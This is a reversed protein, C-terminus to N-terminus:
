RRETIQSTLRGACCSRHASGTSRWTVAEFLNGTECMYAGAQELALPLYGLAEALEGAAEADALGTRELLFM